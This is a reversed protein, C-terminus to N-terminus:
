ATAIGIRAALADGDPARLNAVARIAALASRVARGAEDEHATPWGFYALVGDGLFKAVHGDLCAISEVVANQYARLVERMDEPDLKTSLATSGVLDCFMVSLQRREAHSITANPSSIVNLAAAMSPSSSKQASVQLTAIAALLKRRHGVSSIGLSILDEATLELLMDADIDNEQFTREYRELRLNTLWATLDVFAEM